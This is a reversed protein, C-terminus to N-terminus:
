RQNRRFQSGWGIVYLLGVVEIREEKDVARESGKM